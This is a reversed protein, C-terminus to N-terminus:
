KLQSADGAFAARLYPDNIDTSVLRIFYLKFLYSKRKTPAQIEESAAKLIKKGL